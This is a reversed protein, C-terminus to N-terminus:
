CKPITQWKDHEIPFNEYNSAIHGLFQAPIGWSLDIASGVLELGCCSERFSSLIHCDSALTTVEGNRNGVKFITISMIYLYNENM